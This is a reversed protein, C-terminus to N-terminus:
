PETLINDLSRADVWRIGNEDPASWIDSNAGITVNGHLCFIWDTGQTWCASDIRPQSSTAFASKTMQHDIISGKGSVHWATAKIVKKLYESSFPITYDQELHAEVDKYWKVNTKIYEKFSEM